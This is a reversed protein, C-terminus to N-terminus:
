YILIVNFVYFMVDFRFAPILKYFWIYLLIKYWYLDTNKQMANTEKHNNQNYDLRIKDKDNLKLFKNLTNKKKKKIQPQEHVIYLM